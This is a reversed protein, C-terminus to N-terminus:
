RLVTGGVLRSPGASLLQIMDEVVDESTDGWHLNSQVSREHHDLTTILLRHGAWVGQRMSRGALRAQSLPSSWLIRFLVIHGLGVGEIYAGTEESSGAVAEARVFERTTLNRLVWKQDDPYLYGALRSISAFDFIKAMLPRPIERVENAAIDRLAAIV